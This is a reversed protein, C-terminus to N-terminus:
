WLVPRPGLSRRLMQLNSCREMPRLSAVSSVSAGQRDMSPFTTLPSYPCKWTQLVQHAQHVQHIPTNQYNGREAGSFRSELPGVTVSEAGAEILM